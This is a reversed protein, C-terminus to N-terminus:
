IVKKQFFFVFLCISRVFSWRIHKPLPFHWSQLYQFQSPLTSFGKAMEVLSDTTFLHHKEEIHLRRLQQFKEIPAFEEVRRTSLYSFTTINLTTINNPCAQCLKHLVEALSCSSQEIYHISLTHLKNMPMKTLWHVANDIIEHVPHCLKTTDVTATRLNPFTIVPAPLGLRIEEVSARQAVLLAKSTASFRNCACGLLDLSGRGSRAAAIKLELIVRGL